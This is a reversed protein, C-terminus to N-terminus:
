GAPWTTATATSTRPGASRRPRAASAASRTAPSSSTTSQAERRLNGAYAGPEGFGNYSWTDAVSGLTTGTLLGNQPNRALTLAGAKTLLSDADYQYTVANAGNVSLATVRFDNDYTRGVSGAVPGTWSESTLLSGDYSFALTISGPARSARWSGPLRRQYGYSVTGRAITLTSLKGTTSNYGFDLNQGAPLAIRTVQRDLNYTNLTQDQPLGVDPPNYSAELDVATYTFNHAPRGPPTVSTVNSNADYAYAIVRNDPLIQQTVRGAADYVFRVTRNLPDVITELYGQSDYTM